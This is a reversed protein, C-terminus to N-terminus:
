DEEDLVEELSELLGDVHETGMPASLILGMATRAFFGKLVLGIGIRDFLSKDSSAVGRYDRAPQDTFYTNIMSGAGVIQCTIGARQFAAVLGRQLRARLGDLHEYVEPTLARLTALGAALTFNNGSFTGSQSLGTPGKTNDLVDMLDAKGGIAGVPFGGGVIKGFMTLDPRIGCVGQYGGYGVRFSVVEDMIMLLGLEETIDRVFRSFEIPIDYMGPKGDYFVGAIEDKHQRLILEVTEPQSYPLIVTDDQSGRAMGNWAAVPSPADPPGASEVPPTVSYEVADHSGHYAGEFKAIKPRGTVARALRTVHISSETASNTYRVKDISPFRKTIEEAVEAELTTPAGFGIGKELERRVAEVVAAPSHGLIMASHHNAFDVYRRGDLDWVYCGEAREVYIPNPSDWYAGKIIGGPMVPKGREWQARSKPTVRRYEEQLAELSRM